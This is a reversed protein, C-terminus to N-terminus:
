AIRWVRVGCGAPDKRSTFRKPKNRLHFASIANSLTSRTKLESEGWPVFFSDGVEMDALPYKAKGRGGQRSPVPIGKEIQIPSTTM